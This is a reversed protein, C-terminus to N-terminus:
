RYVELCSQFSMEKTINKVHIKNTYALNRVM